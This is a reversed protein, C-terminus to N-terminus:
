EERADKVEQEVLASQGIRANSPTPLEKKVQKIENSTLFLHNYHVEINNKLQRQKEVPERDILDFTMYKSKVWHYADQLEEPSFLEGMVTKDLLQLLVDLSTTGYEGNDFAQNTHDLIRKVLQEINNALRQKLLGTQDEKTANIMDILCHVRIDYRSMNSFVSFKSWAKDYKQMAAATIKDPYIEVLISNLQETGQDDIKWEQQWTRIIESLKEPKNNVSGTIKPGYEKFLVKDYAVFSQKELQNARQYAMYGNHHPFNGRPPPSISLM